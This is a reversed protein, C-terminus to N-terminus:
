GQLREHNPAALNAGPPSKSSDQPRWIDWGDETGTNRYEHSVSSRIRNQYDRRAGSVALPGESADILIIKPHSNLLGTMIRDFAAEGPVRVWLDQYANRQFIGTLDPMFATNFTLYVLNGNSAAYLRTLASAKKLLANGVNEPMLVDSVLVKEGRSNLWSPHMFERTYKVLDSNTRVLMAALLFVFVLHASAIRMHGLRTTTRRDPMPPYGIAFRRRDFIDIVLFGYLFLHTWLQWWNPANIYYAFWVLLTATVALRMSAHQNFARHGLRTASQITVYIAHAFIMLAFPVIVYNENAFGASFLRLGFGGQTYREINELSVFLEFVNQSFPFRGLAIRYVILWTVITALGACVMRLYLFFPIKQTRAVFYVAYGISIAVATEFNNLFAITGVAGLWWAARQLSMRGALAVALMGLPLGISRLGTQNQHWIGLGGTIWYPGALLMAAFIGLYAQPRYFWYAAVASFCFLLQCFQVFRLQHGITFDHTVHDIAGMVSPMLFGYGSPLEDFGYGAAIARSVMTTGDLHMEFQALAVPDDVMLPIPRVLLGPVILMLFYLGAFLMIARSIRHASLTPTSIVFALFFALVLCTLLVSHLPLLFSYVFLWLAVATLCGAIGWNRVIGGSWVSIVGHRALKFCIGSSAMVAILTLLHAARQDGSSVWEYQRIIEKPWQETLNSTVGSMAEMSVFFIVLAALTFCFPAQNRLFTRFREVSWPAAITVRMKHITSLRQDGRFSNQLRHYINPAFLRSTRLQTTLRHLLGQILDKFFGVFILVASIYAVERRQIGILKYLAFNEREGLGLYPSLLATALVVFGFILIAKAGDSLGTFFAMRVM